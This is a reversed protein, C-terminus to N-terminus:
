NKGIKNLNELKKKRRNKLPSYIFFHHEEKFNNKVGDIWMIGPGSGIYEFKDGYFDMSHELSSSSCADYPRRVGDIECETYTDNYGLM